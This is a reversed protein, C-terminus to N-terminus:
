SQKEKLYKLDIRFLIHRNYHLHLKNYRFRIPNPFITEKLMFLFESFKNFKYTLKRKWRYAPHSSLYTVGRSHYLHSCDAEFPITLLLLFISMVFISENRMNLFYTQLTFQYTHLCWFWLISSLIYHSECVRTTKRYTFCNLFKIKKFKLNPM